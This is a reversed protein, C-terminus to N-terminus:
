CNYQRVQSKWSRIPIKLSKKNSITLYHRCSNQTFSRGFFFAKLPNANEAEYIVEDNQIGYTPVVQWKLADLNMGCKITSNMNSMTWNETYYKILRQKETRQWKAMIDDARWPKNSNCSRIFGKTDEFM